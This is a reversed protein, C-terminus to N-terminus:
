IPAAAEQEDAILKGQIEQVRARHDFALCLFQQRIKVRQQAPEFSGFYQIVPERDSQTFLPRSGCSGFANDLVYAVPAFVQSGM